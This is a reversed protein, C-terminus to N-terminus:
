FHYALLFQYIRPAVFHTGSFTSLFNYLAVENTLNTITARLAVKRRTDSHFLNDTGFAVDLLNRARVRDPNHDNNATAAPPLTLLASKMAGGCSTIPSEITAPVGNCSLGITVQQAPTLALAAVDDPVGTVVLGSDFRWILAGWVGDTKHQYRINTTQQFAQDHDIRFVGPISATGQFILGGVEPPFYRARSHGFTTYMQVGHFRTTSIRGTLGDIKSNHWAIPFTIPTNFLVDFDYANHTYKWFYDGDVVLYKGIRQQLGANFQNRMGPAIPVSGEAGFM